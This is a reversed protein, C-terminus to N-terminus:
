IMALEYDRVRAIRIHNNDKYFGALENWTPELRKCVGCWPAFFNIFIDGESIASEFTDETLETLGEVLAPEQAAKVTEVVPLQKFINM